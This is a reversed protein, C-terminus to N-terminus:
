ADTEFDNKGIHVKLVQAALSSRATCIELASTSQLRRKVFGACLLEQYFLPKLLKFFLTSMDSNPAALNLESDVQM